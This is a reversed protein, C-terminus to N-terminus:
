SRVPEPSRAHRRTVPEAAANSNSGLLGDLVDRLRRAARPLPFEARSLRAINMSTRNSIWDSGLMQRIADALDDPTNSEYLIGLRGDLMAEPIGEVRPAVTPVGCCAAEVITLGFAESRSPLVHVDVGAFFDAVKCREVEGIFEAPVRLERALDPYEGTRDLGAIRLRCKVGRDHLLRVARILIDVGKRDILSGIFGLVPEDNHPRPLRDLPPFRREDIANVITLSRRFRVKEEHVARVHESCHIVLDCLTTGYLYLYRRTYPAHLHVAIPTRTIRAAAVSMQLARGSSSYVVDPRFKRIARVVQLNARFLGRVNFKRNGRDIMVEGTTVRDAAIGLERARELLVPQDCLLRLERGGAQLEALLDLLILESGRLIPGGSHICLIRRGQQKM